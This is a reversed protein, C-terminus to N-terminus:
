RTIKLNSGKILLVLHELLVGPNFLDKQPHKIETIKVAKSVYILWALPMDGACIADPHSFQSVRALRLQSIGECDM